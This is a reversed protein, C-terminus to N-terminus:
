LWGLVTIPEPRAEAREVATALPIRTQAVNRSRRRHRGPAADHEVRELAVLEYRGHRTM